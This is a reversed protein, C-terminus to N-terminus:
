FFDLQLVDNVTTFIMLSIIFAFGCKFAFEQIKEPVPRRIIAQVAYFFLHGGDLMPIPFLNILGLNISLLAMFWLVTAFGKEMSQGSYKAIKIPGGLEDVSRQGAIMQGMARLTDMCMTYTEVVAAVVAQGPSLTDHIVEGSAVGLRGITVTNGFVDESEVAEPTVFLHIMEGDREILMDLEMAPYMRVMRQVDSFQSISRGSIEVFRDGAQLGAAAAASDEQVGGVVAPTMPKGIFMFFGALIVIALLFNAIPGAAVIATKKPLSKHVFSVEREEPTMEKAVDNDPTSAADADGFMKVFGGMPLVAIKWRTGHKDDWGVLEKGFGISFQEVRVGCWRAVIYHGFEHIFVIVSIILFFAGAYYLGSTLWEM